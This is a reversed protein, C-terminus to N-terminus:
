VVTFTVSVSNTKGTYVTGPFSATSGKYQYHFTLTYTGPRSLDYYTSSGILNGNYFTTKLGEGGFDQVFDSSWLISLSGGPAVSVLSRSLALPFGDSYNTWTGLTAVGADGRSISAIVLNGDVLGSLGLPQNSQNTLTAVIGIATGAPYTAATPAASLTVLPNPVPIPVPNPAPTATARDAQQAPPNGEAAPTTLPTGLLAGIALVAFLSKGTRTNM